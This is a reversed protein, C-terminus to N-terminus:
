GLRDVRRRLQLVLFVDVDHLRMAGLDFLRQLLSPARQSASLPGPIAWFMALLRGLFDAWFNSWLIQGSLKALEGM